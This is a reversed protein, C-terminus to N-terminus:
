FNSDSGKDEQFNKNPLGIIKKDTFKKIIEINRSSYAIQIQDKRKMIKNYPIGELSSKSLFIWAGVMFNIRIEYIEQWKISKYKIFGFLKSNIEEASITLLVYWKPAVGILILIPAIGMMFVGIIDLFLTHGYTETFFSLYIGVIGLIPLFLLGIAITISPFMKYVKKDRVM